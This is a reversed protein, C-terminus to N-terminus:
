ELASGQISRCSNNEHHREALLTRNKSKEGAVLAGIKDAKAHVVQEDPWDYEISV